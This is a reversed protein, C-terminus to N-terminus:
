KSKLHKIIMVSCSHSQLYCFLIYYYVIDVYCYTYGYCQNTTQIPANSYELSFHWVM